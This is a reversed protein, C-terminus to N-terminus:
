FAIGQRQPIARFGTLLIPAKGRDPASGSYYSPSSSLVGEAYLCIAGPMFNNEQLMKFYLNMLVRQLEAECEGM